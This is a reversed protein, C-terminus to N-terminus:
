NNLFNRMRSAFARSKQKSYRNYVGTYVNRANEALLKKLGANLTPISNELIAEKLYKSFEIDYIINREEDSYSTNNEVSSITTIRIQSPNINQDTYNINSSILLPIQEISNTLSNINQREPSVILNDRTISEAAIQTSIITTDITNISGSNNSLFTNQYLTRLDHVTGLSIFVKTIIEPVSPSSNFSNVLKVM